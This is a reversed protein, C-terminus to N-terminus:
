KNKSELLTQQKRPHVRGKEIYHKMEEFVKKIDRKMILLFLWGFPKMWPTLEITAQSSVLCNTEDLADISFSNQAGTFIKPLGSQVKYTYCFEKPKFETLLEQVIAAPFFGFQNSKCTRIAGVGLQGSLSSTRLATTWQAVSGFNEALVEWARQQSASIKIATHLKM